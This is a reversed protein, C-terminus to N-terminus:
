QRAEKHDHGKKEVKMIHTDHSMEDKSSSPYGQSERHNHQHETNGEQHSQHGGEPAPTEAVEAAIVPASILLSVSMALVLKKM